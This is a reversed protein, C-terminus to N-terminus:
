CKTHLKHYNFLLLLKIMESNQVNKPLLQNFVFMTFIMTDSKICIIKIRVAVM